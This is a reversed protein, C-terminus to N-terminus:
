RGTVRNWLVSLCGQRNEPAFLTLVRPDAASEGRQLHGAVHRALEPWDDKRIGRYYQWDHNSADGWGDWFAAAITFRRESLDQNPLLEGLLDDYRSAIQDYEGSEHACVAELLAAALLQDAETPTAM